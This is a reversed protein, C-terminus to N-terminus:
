HATGARGLFHHHFAASFVWCANTVLAVAVVVFLSHTVGDHVVRVEGPDKSNRREWQATNYQIGGCLSLMHVATDNVTNHFAHLVLSKTLCKTSPSYSSFSTNLTRVPQKKKKFNLCQDKARECVSTM